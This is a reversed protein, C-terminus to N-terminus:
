EPLDAMYMLFPPAPYEPVSKKISPIRITEDAFAERNPFKSITAVVNIARKSKLSFTDPFNHIDIRNIVTELMM